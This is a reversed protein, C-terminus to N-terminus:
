ELVAQLSATGSLPSQLELTIDNACASVPLTVEGLRISCFLNAFTACTIGGTAPAIFNRFTSGLTLQLYCGDTPSQVYVVQWWVEWLANGTLEPSNGPDGACEFTIGTYKFGTSWVYSAPFDVPGSYSLVHQGDFLTSPLSIAPVGGGSTPCDATWDRDIIGEPLVYFFPQDLEPPISCCKNAAGEAFRPNTPKVCITTPPTGTCNIPEHNFISFSNVCTPSWERAPGCQRTLTYTLIAAM